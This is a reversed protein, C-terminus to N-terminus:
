LPAHGLFDGGSAALLKSSGQLQVLLVEILAESPASVHPWNLGLADLAFAAALDSPLHNALPGECGDPGFKLRSSHGLAENGRDDEQAADTASPPRDESFLQAENDQEGAKEPQRDPSHEDEPILGLEVLGFLAAAHVHVM